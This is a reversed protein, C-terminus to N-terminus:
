EDGGIWVLGLNGNPRNKWAWRGHRIDEKVEVNNTVLTNDKIYTTETSGELFVIRTNTILLKFTSDTEGLIICPEDEYTSVNVYETKIGLATLTETMGDLKGLLTEESDPDIDGIAKMIDAISSASADASSQLAEIDFYFLGSEDQKVLSTEEGSRVISSISNALQELSSESATVRVEVDDVSGQVRDAAKDTYATQDEPAPTWDTAKNGRELNLSGKRVEVWHSSDYDPLGYFLLMQYNVRANAEAVSFTFEAHQWETENPVLYGNLKVSANPATRQLFFVHGPKSINGRYDFSLTVEESNDVCGDYALPISMCTASKGDFRLKAGNDTQEIAGYNGMRSIGDASNHADTVVPMKETHRLLNRGGVQVGDVAETIDAKKVIKSLTIEDRALITM